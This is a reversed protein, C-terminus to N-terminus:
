VVSKRDIRWGVDLTKGTQFFARQDLVMQHVKNQDWKGNAMKVAGTYIINTNKGSFSKIMNRYILIAM